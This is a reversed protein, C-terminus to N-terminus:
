RTRARGRGPSRHGRRHRGVPAAHALRDHPAHAAVAPRAVIVLAGPDPVSTSSTSSRSPPAHGLRADQDHVVVLEEAGAHARLELRQELDGPSASPTASAAASCRRARARRPAARRACARRRRRPPSGRARGCAPPGAGTNRARETDSSGSRRSRRPGRRRARTRSWSCRRARGPPRRAGRARRRRPTRGAAPPSRARRRRRAPARLGVALEVRESRALALHQLVDRAAVHVLLDRRRRSM